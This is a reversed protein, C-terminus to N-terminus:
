RALFCRCVRRSYLAEIPGSWFFIKIGRTVVGVDVGLVDKLFSGVVFKGGVVGISGTLTGSMSYLILLAHTFHLYLM